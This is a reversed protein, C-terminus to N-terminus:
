ASCHTEVPFFHQIRPSDDRAHPIGAVGVHAEDIGVVDEFGHRGRERLHEGTVDHVDSDRGEFLVAVKLGEHKIWEQLKVLEIQLRALEKEYVNKKVKRKKMKIDAGVPHARSGDKSAKRDPNSAKKNVDSGM